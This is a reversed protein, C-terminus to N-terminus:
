LKKIKFQGVLEKLTYAQDSLKQSINTNEQLTKIDYQIMKNVNEIDERIAYVENEQENSANVIDSVAETVSTTADVINRLAGASYVVKISGLDVKLRSKNLMDATEKAAKDSRLALRRVEEAVVAFGKGHEGARAAEVSANLALLNTQFAISEITNSVDSIKNTADIIDEMVSSLERMHQTGEEAMEYVKKSLRSATKADEVNKNAKDMLNNTANAIESMHNTQEGFSAMFKEMSQAISKSDLEVSTSTDYIQSILTSISDSIKNLSTSIISFDGIYAKEININFKNEAISALIDSIEKIYYSIGDLAEIIIQEMKNMDKAIEETDNDFESKQLLINFRGKGITKSIIDAINEIRTHRYNNVKETLRRMEGIHSMNTMLIIFGHLFPIVNLELDFLKDKNLQLNIWIELQPEKTKIAAKVPEQSSLSDNLFKDIHQGLVDENEKRTFKKIMDNAFLINLNTDTIIIPESIRNILKYLEHITHNSYEIIEKFTGKLPNEHRYYLHGSEIKQSGKKLIEQLKNINAVINQINNSAQGIEDNSMPLDIITNGLSLEDLINVIKDIRNIIYLKIYIIIVFSLLFFLPILIIISQIFNVLLLAVFFVFFILISTKFILKM